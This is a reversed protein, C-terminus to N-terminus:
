WPEWMFLNRTIFPIHMVDSLNKITGYKMKLKVKGRGIIDLTMDDRM